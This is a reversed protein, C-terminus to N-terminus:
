KIILALVEAFISDLVWFLIAVVAVSIVVVSTFVTTQQRDPWIVKRLEARVEKIFKLLRTLFKMM